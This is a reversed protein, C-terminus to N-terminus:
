PCLREKLKINRKLVVVNHISYALAKTTGIIICIKKARTIGTYVLNRQLMVYHTMLLPIVVVPYEGNYNVFVNEGLKIGHGHDCHFPPSVTSSEPIGPIPAEITDRYDADEITM